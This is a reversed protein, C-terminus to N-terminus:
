PFRFVWVQILSMSFDNIRLPTFTVNFFFVVGHPKILWWRHLKKQLGCTGQFRKRSIKLEQKYPFYHNVRYKMTALFLLHMFIREEQWTSSVYKGSMKINHGRCGYIDCFHCFPRMVACLLWMFSVCHLSTLFWKNIVKPTGVFIKFSPFFLIAYKM